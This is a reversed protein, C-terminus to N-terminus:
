VSSSFNAEVPSRASRGPNAVDAHRLHTLVLGLTSRRQRADRHRYRLIQEQDPQRVEAPSTWRLTSRSRPGAVPEHDGNRKVLPRRACEASRSPHVALSTTSAQLRPLRLSAMWPRASGAKGAHTNQAFRRGGADREASAFEAGPPRRAAPSRRACPRRCRRSPACRSRASASAASASSPGVTGGADGSGGGAAAGRLHAARARQARRAGRAARAHRQEAEEQEVLVSEQSASDDVLWDQWEGDGDGDARIPANLSADGGLRRNM